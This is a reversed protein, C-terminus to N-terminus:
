PSAVRVRAVRLTRDVGKPRADYREVVFEVPIIKAEIAREVLSEEAVLEGSGAEGQLRAAINVAQGFYDLIGNATVAFCSGGFVGLKIHTEARIGGERRFDEFAHLIAVSAALGDLDDAFVAMVADGITKVLTGGNKEVLGIVVDFHDQVLKFAAADGASAYLRTSGTLDSFFLGVRAVKLALGPRLVDRSFDRRFGPMSTVVRARAAVDAVEVRELKVHSEAHEGDLAVVIVGDPAIAIPDGVETVRVESPAGLAIEVLAHAGGRVFLRCRCPDSPGQIRAEGHEPLIAQALVHPTRAPGGICYPGVDVDRVARVPAFTAEVADELDIAFDLDCLQCAGHEGLSALTPIVDTAVRCSPCVIEWRLELLGARVAALCVALVDNRRESWADAVEFPRIRSADFDPAGEVHALLKDVIARRDPEAEVLVKSVRALAAAQVGSQQAPAVAAGAVIAADIRTIMDEFDRMTVSSVVRVLPSLIRVRPALAVRLKVDVGGDRRPEFAYAVELSALPGSRMIRLIKFSKLYIWEFPREEYEVPFGGLTTKVLYRAASAGDAPRVAIRRLGLVRNTRETDALADWLSRVDSRCALTIESVISRM